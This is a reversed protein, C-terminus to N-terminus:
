GRRMKWQGGIVRIICCIICILLNTAFVCDCIVQLATHAASSIAPQRRRRLANPNILGKRAGSLKAGKNKAAKRKGWREFCYM